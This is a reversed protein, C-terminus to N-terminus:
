FSVAMQFNILQISGGYLNRDEALGLTYEAKLTVYPSPKVNLGGVISNMNYFSFTDETMNYEAIFYPTIRVPHIWKSLPLEWALLGYVGNATHSPAYIDVLPSVGKLLSGEASELKHTNYDVFRFVYEAQFRLGKFTLLFDTAIALEDYDETVTVRTRLPKDQTEDLTLDSNLYTVATKSIDTYKGYYGYGGLKISVVDGEYAFSLRLGLGKNENLDMLEEVPGRGNSLTVAYDFYMSDSPFLRGYVQLGTQASPIMERLQMYPVRVGLVVSSGHDTNWIGYPTLFRGAIINFWHRPTYNLYAREITISGYNHFATTIPDRIWTEERKYEGDPNQEEVGNIVAISDPDTEMGHPLFSLHTEVLMGLNEAMQGVFYLNLNSIVFTSNRPVYMAYISDKPFVAKQFNLDFFGHIELGRYAEQEIEELAASDQNLIIEENQEKLQELESRLTNNEETQQVNEQEVDKLRREIAAMKEATDDKEQAGASMPFAFLLLALIALGSKM